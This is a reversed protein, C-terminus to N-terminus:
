EEEFQPKAAEVAEVAKAMKAETAWEPLEDCLPCFGQVLEKGCTPCESAARRSCERYAQSFSSPLEVETLSSIKSAYLVAIPHQNTADTSATQELIRQLVDSFAIVVGCLNCADQIDLARQYDETTLRSLKIPKSDM